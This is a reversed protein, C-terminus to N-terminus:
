EIFRLFLNLQHWQIINTDSKLDGKNLVLTEYELKGNLADNVAFDSESVQWSIRNWTIIQVTDIKEPDLEM